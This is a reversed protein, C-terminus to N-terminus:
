LTKNHLIISHRGSYACGTRKSDAKRRLEGLLYLTQGGSLATRRAFQKTFGKAGVSRRTNSLEKCFRKGFSAHKAMVSIAGFVNLPEDVFITRLL